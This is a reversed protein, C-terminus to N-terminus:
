RRQDRNRDERRDDKRGRDDRRDDRRGRDDRRDKDDRRDRDKDDRRRDDRRDDKGRDDRKRDDRRSDRSDDRKRKHSDREDDEYVMKYKGGSRDNSQDKLELPAAGREGGGRQAGQVRKYFGQGFTNVLRGDKTVAQKSVSQSFDVHIRRDDILVNEMKFYADECSKREAFEIFAYSLSEGTKWDKIVECKKIEGFRSFILELDEDTTVPNLKCVFLINDPPRMDADQIDGLMELVQARSAAEKQRQEKEIEEAPREDPKGIKEMEDEDLLTDWKEKPPLPSMDPIVLGAPDDFPDDLIITHKIRVVQLPKGNEDCYVDNIKTIVDLGESVQGFITHKEDLNTLNDEVTIYFQSTNTNPGSSAMAVTGKKKHRLHPRIEDEFFKAQEGYLIGYISDGGKGTNTPDGSQILFNKQINHFLCNNYYKTKCLKLFNKTAFPCDKTFLDIVIDGLSTELLVAM